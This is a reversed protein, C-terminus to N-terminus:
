CHIIRDTNDEIDHNATMCGYTHNDISYYAKRIGFDPLITSCVCCPRSMAFMDKSELFSRRVVYLSCGTLDTKRRVKAIAAMEAHCSIRYNRKSGRVLDTYYEVFSSTKNGNFGVSLINGGRVIIACHHSKLGEDFEHTLLLDMAKDLFKHM